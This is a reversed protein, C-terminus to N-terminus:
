VSELANTIWQAAQKLDSVTADPNEPPLEEYGRDIFVTRCGARRGAEVDRSRDGVMFSGELSLNRDRAAELLM